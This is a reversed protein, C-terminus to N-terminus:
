RPQSGGSYPNKLVVQGSLPEQMAPQPTSLEIPARALHEYIRAEQRHPAWEVLFTALAEWLSVWAAVTLGEAFVQGIISTSSAMMRNVMVAVILIGFGVALLMMSTRFMKKVSRTELEILYLFFNEISKRVRSVLSEDPSQNLTVRIIFPMKGVERACDTLYDVLHQDLDKRQYPAYKDFNDYLDQIRGAAVDIIVKGEGTRAYRSLIVKKM